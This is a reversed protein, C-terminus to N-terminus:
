EGKKNKDNTVQHIDDMLEDVEDETIKGDAKAKKWWKWITYVLSVITAIITLVLNCIVIVQNMTAMSVGTCTGGVITGLWAVIDKYNM